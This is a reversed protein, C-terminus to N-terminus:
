DGKRSAARASRGLGPGIGKVQWGRGGLRRRARDPERTALYSPGPWSRVEGRNEPGALRLGWLDNDLSIVEYGAEEVIETAESPYDDHDEFVIDRITGRTLLDSAGRLVEAEHGEVDIKVLGFREGGAIEDLRALPVEISDSGGGDQFDDSLAAVAMDFESSTGSVLMGAGSASSLAVRSIEVAGALDLGRWREANRELLEIARPHPEFALVKGAAGVRAAALSTMYGLNAGVDAVTEGPEILRHLVETVCPDFVRGAVISFGIADSAEVELPLDWPM